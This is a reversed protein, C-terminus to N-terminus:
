SRANSRNAATTPSQTAREVPLTQTAIEMSCDEGCVTLQDTNCTDRLRRALARVRPFVEGELKDFRPDSSIFMFGGRVRFAVGVVQNGFEVLCRKKSM